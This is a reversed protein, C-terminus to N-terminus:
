CGQFFRLRGSPLWSNEEFGCRAGAVSTSKRGSQRFGAQEKGTDLQARYRPFGM